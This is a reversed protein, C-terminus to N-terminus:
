FEQWKRVGGNVAVVENTSLFTLCTIVGDGAMIANSSAVVQQWTEGADESQFIGTSFGGVVAVGDNAFDPSVALSAFSGELATRWTSGGDRTVAIEGPSQALALGVPVLQGAVRLAPLPLSVTTLTEGLVARGVRSGDFDTAVVVRRDTTPSLRNAGDLVKRWTNLDRSAYVGERGPTTVSVVLLEGSADASTVMWQPDGQPFTSNRTWSSGGDATVWLGTRTGVVINTTGGVSGIVALDFAWDGAEAPLTGVVMWSRGGDATKWLELNDRVADSVVKVAYAGGGEGPAPAFGKVYGGSLNSDHWTRGADDSYMVGGDSWKYGEAGLVRGTWADFKMKSPRGQWTGIVDLLVTGDNDCRLWFGYGGHGEHSPELDPRLRLAEGIAMDSDLAPQRDIPVDTERRSDILAKVPSGNAVTVVLASTPLDPSVLRTLWGARKGDRGENSSSASTLALSRVDAVAAGSSWSQAAELAVACADRLTIAHASAPAVREYLVAPGTTGTRETGKASAAELRKSANRGVNVTVTANALAALALSITALAILSLIVKSCRRM